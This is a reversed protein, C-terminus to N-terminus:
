YLGFPWSPLFSFDTTSTIQSPLAIGQKAQCPDTLKQPDLLCDLQLGMKIHSRGLIASSWPFLIGVIGPTLPQPISCKWPCSWLYHSLLEPYYSIFYRSVCLWFYANTLRYTQLLPHCGVETSKGPFGWPHLFRTPQLGHTWQADSVVSRSRMWKESEHMPSPFPVGSWHEQRSFGLSPPVQHAAM